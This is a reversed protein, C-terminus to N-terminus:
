SLEFSELTTYVSGTPKLDSKILSIQNVKFHIPEIQTKKIKNLATFNEKGRVRMLTLHPHFKRKEIEFGLESISEDIQKQLQNIKENKELGIWFIKPKNNRYFIGFKEFCTEIKNQTQSIRKLRNKIEPILSVDTDGLFKLTIHLKDKGEWKAPYNGYLKVAFSSIKDIIKGPIDLTIFLRNMM